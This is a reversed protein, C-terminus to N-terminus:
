RLQAGAGPTSLWRCLKMFDCRTGPIGREGLYNLM